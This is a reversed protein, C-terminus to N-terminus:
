DLSSAMLDYFMPLLESKFEAGRKATEFSKDFDRKSPYSFATEFMATVNSPSEALVAQYKAIAGDYDGKDHLEIGARIIADQEPTTESPARSPAGQASVPAAACLLLAVLGLTKLTRM